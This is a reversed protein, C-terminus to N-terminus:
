YNVDEVIFYVDHYIRLVDSFRMYGFWLHINIKNTSTAPISGVNESGFDSTNAM